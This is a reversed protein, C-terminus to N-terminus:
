KRRKRLRKKAQAGWPKTKDLYEPTVDPSLAAIRHWHRSPIGRQLWKRVAYEGLGLLSAVRDPGGLKDLLAAHRNSM